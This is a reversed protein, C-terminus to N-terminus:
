RRRKWALAGRRGKGGSVAVSLCSNTLEVQLNFQCVCSLSFRLLLLHCHLSSIINSDIAAFTVRCGLSCAHCRYRPMRFVLVFEVHPSFGHARAFAAVVRLDRLLNWVCGWARPEAARCVEGSM